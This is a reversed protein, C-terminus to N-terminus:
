FYLAKMHFMDKIKKKKEKWPNSLLQFQSDKHWKIVELKNGSLFGFTFKTHYISRWHEILQEKQKMQYSQM